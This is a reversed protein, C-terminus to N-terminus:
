ILPGLNQNGGPGWFRMVSNLLRVIKWHFVDDVLAVSTTGNVVSGELCWTQSDTRNQSDMPTDARGAVCNCSAVDHGEQRPYRRVRQVAKSQETKSGTSFKTLRLRIQSSFSILYGQKTDRFCIPIVNWWTTFKWCWDCLFRVNWLSIWKWDRSDQDFSSLGAIQWHPVL